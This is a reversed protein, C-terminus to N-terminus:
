RHMPWIQIFRDEHQRKIFLQVEEPYTWKAAAMCEILRKEDLYNVASVLVFCEMCKAGVSLHDVQVFRASAEAMFPDLSEVVSLPRQPQEGPQVDEGAGLVLILNDVCSV